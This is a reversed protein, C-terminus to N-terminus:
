RSFSSLHIKNEIEYGYAPAVRLTDKEPRDWGYYYVWENLTEENLTLIERTSVGLMGLERLAFDFDNRYAGNSAPLHWLPPFKSTDFPFERIEIVNEGGKRNSHKSGSLREDWYSM